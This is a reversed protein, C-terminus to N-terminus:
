SNGLCTSLGRLIRDNYGHHFLIARETAGPRQWVLVQMFPNLAKLILLSFPQEGESGQGRKFFNLLLAGRHRAEGALATSSDFTPETLVLLM